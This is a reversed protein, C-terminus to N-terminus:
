KEKKNWKTGILSSESILFYTMKKTNFEVTCYASQNTSMDKLYFFITFEDYKETSSKWIEHATEAIKDESPISETNLIIRKVARNESALGVKETKLVEYSLSTKKVEKPKEVKKIQEKIVPPNIDKNQVDDTPEYYYIGIITNIVSFLIIVLCGLKIAKKM